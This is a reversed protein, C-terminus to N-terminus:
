KRVGSERRGGRKWKGKRREGINEKHVYTHGGEGAKKLRGAKETEWKKERENRVRQQACKFAHTSLVTLPLPLSPVTVCIAQSGTLQRSQVESHLPTPILKIETVALSPPTM